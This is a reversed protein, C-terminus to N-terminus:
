KNEKELDYLCVPCLGDEINMIMSRTDFHGKPCIM